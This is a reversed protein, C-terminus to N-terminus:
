AEPDEVPGDEVPDEALAAEERDLIQNVMERLNFLAPVDDRTIVGQKIKKVWLAVLASSENFFNM